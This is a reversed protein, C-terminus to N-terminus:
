QSSSSPASLAPASSRGSGTSAAPATRTSAGAAPNNGMGSRITNSTAADGGTRISTNVGPLRDGSRIPVQVGPDIPTRVITRSRPPLRVSRPTVVVGVRCGSGWRHGYRHGHGYRRCHIPEVVGNAEIGVRLGAPASITIATAASASLMLGFGATAFSIGAFKRM